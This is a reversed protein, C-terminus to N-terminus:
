KKVRIGGKVYKGTWKLKRPDRKLIRLNKRCKNSCTWQVMGDNKVLMTGQGITVQKGCFFCNRLSSTTKSM